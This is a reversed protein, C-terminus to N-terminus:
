QEPNTTVRTEEKLFPIVGLIVATAQSTKRREQRYLQYDLGHTRM